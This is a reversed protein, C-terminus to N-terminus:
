VRLFRLVKQKVSKYILCKYWDCQSMEFSVLCTYFEIIIM